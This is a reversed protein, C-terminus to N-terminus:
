PIAEATLTARFICCPLPKTSNLRVSPLDEHMVNDYTVSVNLM